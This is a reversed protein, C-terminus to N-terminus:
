NEPGKGRGTRSRKRERHDRQKMRQSKEGEQGKFVPAEQSERRTTEDVGEARRQALLEWISSTGGLSWICIHM